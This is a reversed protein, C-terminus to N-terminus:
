KYHTGHQSAPRQQPSTMFNVSELMPCGFSAKPLPFKNLVQFAGSHEVKVVAGRGDFPSPCFAMTLYVTDNVLLM